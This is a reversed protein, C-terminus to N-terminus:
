FLGLSNNEATINCSTVKQEHGSEIPNKCINGLLRNVSSWLHLQVNEPKLPAVQNVLGCAQFSSGRKTASLSRPDRPPTMAM